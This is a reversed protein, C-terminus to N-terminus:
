GGTERRWLSEIVHDVGRGLHRRYTSFPLDLREAAIAQTPAPRFYTLDLARFFRSEKPSADLQAATERLLHQLSALPEDGDAERVVRAGLLPNGDLDYPRTYAKLAERVAEAFADHSLVVLPEDPTESEVSTGSALAELWAEPPVARWDKGFAASGDAVEAERWRRLGVFSFVPAWLDPERTLLFSFALADTSLYHAVTRAFVLSQVASVGQGADADLWSRFLLAREGRRLSGSAAGWARAVAADSAREADSLAHLPVCILFGAVGGDGRRFVEADGPRREIWAAVADAEPAGHHQEVMARIAEADAGRLPGSGSVDAHGWAQQLQGLLPRVVDSDRYLHLYDALARHQEADGSAARLARGCVRRARAQLAAHHGADRWRLDAELTERVLDHLLVGEADSRVFSLSRLWAFLAEPSAARDPARHGRASADSDAPTTDGSAADELLASLMPFTVSRVVAAAELAVQHAHSPVASAFRAVLEGVIEPASFPTAEATSGEDPALPANQRAHEAALALALPHGHAFALISARDTESVGEADLYAKAEAVALGALPVLRVADGWGVRWDPSPKQRGAIVVLDSARLEPLFTRRLWGDLHEIEEYTDVLLLRPAEAGGSARVNDSVKGGSAADPHAEPTARALARSAAQAFATPTPELDRGDVRAVGIGARRALRAVEDLLASKGMGGPGYVHAVAFAGSAGTSISELAAAFLSLEAERGM